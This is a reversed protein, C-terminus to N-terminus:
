QELRWLYYLLLQLKQSSARQRSKNTIDRYFRMEHGMYKSLLELLPLKIYPPVFTLRAEKQEYPFVLDLISRFHLQVDTYLVTWQYHQRCLIQLDAVAPPSEFAPNTEELYFAQAIRM